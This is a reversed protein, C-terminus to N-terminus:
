TRFGPIVQCDLHLLLCSINGLFDGIGLFTDSRVDLRYMLLFSM